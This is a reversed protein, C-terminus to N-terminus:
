YLSSEASKHLYLDCTSSSDDVPIAILHPICIVADDLGKKRFTHICESCTPRTPLESAPQKLQKRKQKQQKM